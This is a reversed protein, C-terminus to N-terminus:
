MTMERLVLLEGSLNEEDTTLDETEHVSALLLKELATIEEDVDDDPANTVSDVSAVLAPARVPQRISWGYGLLATLATIALVPRWWSMPHASSLPAIIDRRDPRMADLLAQKTSAPLPPTSTAEMLIKSSALAAKFERCAHCSNLHRKMTSRAFWGIEGSDALLIFQEANSCKM